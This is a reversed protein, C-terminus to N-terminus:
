EESAPMAPIITASAPAVTRNALPSAVAVQSAFAQQNTPAPPVYTQQIQDRSSACGISLTSVILVVASYFRRMEASDKEIKPDDRIGSKLIKAVWTTM